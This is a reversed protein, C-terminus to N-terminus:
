QCRRQLTIKAGSPTYDFFCDAPYFHLNQCFAKNPCHKNCRNCRCCFVIPILRDTRRRHWWGFLLHFFYHMLQKSLLTHCDCFLIQVIRIRRLQRFCCRIIIIRFLKIDATLFFTPKRDLKLHPCLISEAPHTQVIHIALELLILFAIREYLVITPLFFLLFLKM